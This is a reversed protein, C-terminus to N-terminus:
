HQGVEVERSVCTGYIKPGGMRHAVRQVQRELMISRKKNLTGERAKNIKGHENPEVAKTL